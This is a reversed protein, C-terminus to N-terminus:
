KPLNQLWGSFFQRHRDFYNLVGALKGNKLGVLITGYYNNAVSLHYNEDFPLGAAAAASKEADSCRESWQAFTEGVPDPVLFLTLKDNELQYDRTYVMNLFPQGLFSAGIIKDTNPVIGATPFLEFMAPPETTGPVTSALQTALSKLAAGTAESENYGTIRVMITGRVFELSAGTFYGEVGLKLLEPTDPRFASYLGYAGEPTKFEYLDLVLEAGSNRYDATSVKVFGYTHYIEAGGDIYQWLSDGAFTRIESRKELATAEVRQPFYGSLDAASDKHSGGSCAAIAMLLLLVLGVVGSHRLM